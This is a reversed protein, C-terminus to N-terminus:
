KLPMIRKMFDHFLPVSFATLGHAPSFIMGKALLDRCIPAVSNVTQKMIRAIDGSRHSGSGLEAMARMCRKQSPSLRNFRVLFFGADLEALACSTAIETVRFDIPSNQANDWSHKGWEQLFYPYGKTQELISAIAEHTFQVGQRQAPETLAFSADKDNLRDVLQFKFLGEAYTKAEGVQRVLQPLGAAGAVNTLCEKYTGEQYRRSATNQDSTRYDLWWEEQTNHRGDMLKLRFVKKCTAGTGAKHRIRCPPTQKEVVIDTDTALATWTGSGAHENLKTLKSRKCTFTNYSFTGDGGTCTTRKSNCSAYGGPDAFCETGYGGFPNAPGRAIERISDGRSMLTSIQCREDYALQGAPPLRPAHRNEMTSPISITM